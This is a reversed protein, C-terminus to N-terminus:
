IGCLWLEAETLKHKATLEEILPKLKKDKKSKEKNEFYELARTLEDIAAGVEKSLKIKSEKFNGVFQVFEVRAARMKIEGNTAAEYLQAAKTEFTEVLKTM